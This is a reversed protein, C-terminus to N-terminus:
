TSLEVEGIHDARMLFLQQYPLQYKELLDILVDPNFAVFFYNGQGNETSLTQLLDFHMSKDSRHLFLKQQIGSAITSSIEVECDPM